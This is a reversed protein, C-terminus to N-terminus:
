GEPLRRLDSPIFATLRREWRRKGPHGAVIHALRLGFESARLHTDALLFM